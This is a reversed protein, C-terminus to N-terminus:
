LNSPLLDQSLCCVYGTGLELSQLTQPLKLYSFSINFKDGFVLSTLSDPCLTKIIRDFFGSCEVSQLRPADIEVPLGGRCEDILHLRTLKEFGIASPLDTCVLFTIQNKVHEVKPLDTGHLNINRVQKQQSLSLREFKNLTWTARNIFREYLQKLLTTSCYLIQCLDQMTMYVTWPIRADSLSLLMRCREKKRRKRPKKFVFCWGALIKIKKSVFFASVLKKKRLDPSFFICTVFVCFKSNSISLVAMM